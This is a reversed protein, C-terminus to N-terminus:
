IKMYISEYVKLQNMLVYKERNTQIQNPNFSKNFRFDENALKKFNTSETKSGRKGWNKTKITYPM